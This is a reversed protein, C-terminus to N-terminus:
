QNFLYNPMAIKCLSCIESHINLYNYTYVSFCYGKLSSHLRTVFGLDTHQSVNSTCALMNNESLLCGKQHKRQYTLNCM